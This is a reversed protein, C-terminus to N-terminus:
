GSRRFYSVNKEQLPAYGRGRGAGGSVRVAGDGFALEPLWPFIAPLVWASYHLAVLDVTKLPSHPILCQSVLYGQWFRIMSLFLLAHHYWELWSVFDDRREPNIRSHYIRGRQDIDSSTLCCSPQMCTRCTFSRSQLILGILWQNSM